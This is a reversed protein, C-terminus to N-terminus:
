RPKNRNLIGQLTQRSIGERTATRNYAGHKGRLKCEEDYWNTLRERRDEPTESKREKHAESDESQTDETLGRAVALLTDINLTTLLIPQKWAFSGKRKNENPALATKKPPITSISNLLREIRSVEDEISAIEQETTSKRELYAIDASNAKVTELHTQLRALERELYTKREWTLKFFEEYKAIEDTM